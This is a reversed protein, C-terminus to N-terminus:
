MTPFNKAILNSPRISLQNNEVLHVPDELWYLLKLDPNVQVGALVYRYEASSNDNRLRELNTRHTISKAVSWQNSSMRSKGNFKNSGHGKVEIMWIRKRGQPPIPIPLEFKTPIIVDISLDEELYIDYGLSDDIETRQNPYSNLRFRSVWNYPTFLAIKPNRKRASSVWKEIMKFVFLESIEGIKEKVYVPVDHFDLPDTKPEILLAKANSEKLVNPDLDFSNIENEIEDSIQFSNLGSFKGLLKAEGSFNEQPVSRAKSNYKVSDGEDHSDVVDTYERKRVKQITNSDIRHTSFVNERSCILQLIHNTSPIGVISSLIQRHIQIDDSNLLEKTLFLLDRKPDFIFTLEEVFECVKHENITVSTSMKVAESVM